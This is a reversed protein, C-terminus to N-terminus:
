VDVLYFIQFAHNIPTSYLIFHNKLPFNVMYFILLWYSHMNYQNGRHIQERTFKM